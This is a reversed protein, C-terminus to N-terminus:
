LTLTKLMFSYLRLTIIGEFYQITVYAQRLLL